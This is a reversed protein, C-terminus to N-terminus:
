KNKCVITSTIKSHVDLMSILGLTLISFLTINARLYSQAMTVRNSDTSKVRMGLINKGLSSFKSTDFFSFYLSYIFYFVFFLNVKFSMESFSERAFSLPVDGLVLAMLSLTSISVFLIIIDIIYAVLRLNMGISEKNDKFETPTTKNFEVKIKQEVPSQYFASLEGSQKMDFAQSSPKTKHIEVRKSEVESTKKLLDARLMESKEKLTSSKLNQKKENNHFGLGDTIPKFDFDIDFEENTNM